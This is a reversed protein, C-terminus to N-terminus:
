EQSTYALKVIYDENLQSGTLQAAIRGKRMVLVKDCLHALDKFESSILLVGSGAAAAEEILGYIDTKSGIDVGVVPEDCILLDPKLRMWKALIAKQQNGGSLTNFRRTPDPPKVQFQDILKTVERREAKKNLKPGHHFRGLDTVTINEGVSLRIFSGDRHRDETIMAIGDKMAAGPSKYKVQRGKFSVRGGRRKDAGFVLRGIQSCGSGLLGAVGVIEGRHVTFSAEQVQDGSLDDVQLLVEQSLASEVEPYYTDISHGVILEVLQGETLDAVRYTGVLAGDRLVTVRDCLQFIEELRHSVYMVGIGRAAVRRVAAFLREVEAHPLSATPEDLVLLKGDAQTSALARAIAVITKDSSPLRRVLERPNIDHGSDKILERVRNAEVKWRINRIPGKAYGRGLCFNEVVSLSPVIGLDQHVFAMGYEHARESPVPLPLAKGGISVEGGPDPSHYGCLCKILTSKGSGNQGVLAHIEGPLVEMSVERLARQGPFTKSLNTVVLIPEPTDM